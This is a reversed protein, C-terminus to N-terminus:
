LPPLDVFTAGTHDRLRHATKLMQEYLREARNVAEKLEKLTRWDVTKATTRVPDAGAKVETQSALEFGEYQAGGDTRAFRAHGYYNRLKSIGGMHAACDEIKALLDPTLQNLRAAALVMDIRSRTSRNSLWIAECHRKGEKGTLCELVVFFFFELSAAATVLAGTAFLMEDEESLGQPWTFAM